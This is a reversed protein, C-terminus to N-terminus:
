IMLHNTGSVFHMRNYVNSSMLLTRMTKNAGHANLIIKSDTSKSNQVQVVSVQQGNASGGNDTSQYLKEVKKLHRGTSIHNM